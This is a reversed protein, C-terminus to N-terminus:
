GLTGCWALIGRQESFHQRQWIITPIWGKFQSWLLLSLLRKLRERRLQIRQGLGLRHQHNKLVHMPSVRRAQLRQTPRHIPQPREPHQQNNVGTWLELRRPNPSGVNSCEIEITKALAFNSFHNVTDSAVLQQRVANPLVYDLTSVADRQENLFHRLGH